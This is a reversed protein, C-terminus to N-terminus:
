VLFSARVPCAASARGHTPASRGAGSLGCFGSEGAPKRSEPFPWVPDATRKFPWTSGYQLSCPSQWVGSWALSSIDGAGIGNGCGVLCIDRGRRRGEQARSVAGPIEMLRNRAQANRVSLDQSNRPLNLQPHVGVHDFRTTQGLGNPLRPENGSSKAPLPFPKAPTASHKTLFTGPTM